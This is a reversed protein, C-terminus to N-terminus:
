YISLCLVKDIDKYLIDVFNYMDRMQIEQTIMQQTTTVGINGQTTITLTKDTTVTDNNNIVNTVASDNNVTNRDTSESQPLMGQNFANAKLNGESQSTTTGNTTSTSDGKSVTGVTGKDTHTEKRDYNHIPNYEANLADYLRNWKDKYRNLLVRKIIADRQPNNQLSTLIPAINKQGSHNTFYELDFDLLNVAPTVWHLGDDPTFLSFIAGQYFEPFYENMLM